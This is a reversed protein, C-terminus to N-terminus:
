VNELTTTKSRHKEWIVSFTEDKYETTLQMSGKMLDIFEAQTVTTKDLVSSVIMNFVDIDSAILEKARKFEQQLIEEINTSSSLVNTNWATSGGVSPSDIKGITSSFAYRRIFSSAYSTASEIDSQAGTSRNDPGFITEEAAIGALFICISDLMYKKTRISNNYAPLMYGGSFSTANIKVEHPASKTLKSYVLAHGAEHVAVYTKFDLSARDRKTNLELEISFDKMKIENNIESSAIISKLDNRMDLNVSVLDNELCWFAVNTLVGSFIMHISSFVPRTGQTPYVSNNYIETKIKDTINIKIGSTVEMETIYKECTAAILKTYSDKSMSPYIIHNNGLRSIQEPRFRRGLTRKIETSTLKKTLEHYFDADTDCDDAQISGTFAEDLNGSIFIVLKTYDVEWTSRNDRLEKLAELIRTSDWKMIEPISEHLRLTKKLNKAEYPYLKYSREKKKVKPKEDDSSNNASWAEQYDKNYDQMALMMEIDSFMSSDASFKGDSLLTWVDQFRELKVDKGDLDITRFRQFEDLLLIGPEGEEITSSSLLKTLTTANYTSTVSGGDMQVEVFKEHFGILSVLRRVLATKGIGTMGWLNIIVPRNILEPFIYWAQISSIVRDIIKDLGFFESKLQKAVKELIEKKSDITSKDFNPKAKLTVVQAESM